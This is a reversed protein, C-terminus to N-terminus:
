GRFVIKMSFVRICSGEECSACDQQFVGEGM